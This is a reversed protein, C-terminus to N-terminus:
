CNALFFFIVTGTHASLRGLSMFYTQFSLVSGKLYCNGIAKQEKKSESYSKSYAEAFPLVYKIVIYTPYLLNLSKYGISDYIYVPVCDPFFYMVMKNLQVM